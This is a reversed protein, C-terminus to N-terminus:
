ANRLSALPPTQLVRRMGAWSGALATGIGGAIGAFALWVRPVFSFDFVFYALAWCILAAGIAALAGAIVGVLVMEATQASSLQRRSAGLARTLAAERVREDQSSALATYLVLIGAVLAFAFLFQAAAILQDLLARVQGLIQETDIVTLNPFDRVLAGIASEQDGALYFSTIFTQPADRLLAPAMIVFFNVRMSDWDVKRVSSVTAEVPQGAVDFRLRQGLEIHLRRAIGEEISLEPADAAFWHGEVIRNHEPVEIAYSLNFERDILGRAREDEYNEPGVERGDIQVLRGRIMPELRVGALHRDRLAATLAEIQDPQINIIFRNPAHPPAQAHWQEVLDTRVVALVLLAMLGMALAVLQVVMALPRRELAALAFRWSVPLRRDRRLLQLLWLCGRAALAFGGIALLFGGGVVGALRADATAWLLLAAFGCGGALYALVARRAPAGLERRLVRVPSVARLQELPPLGFGLLLVLGCLLGQVGPYVSPPPVGERLMGQLMQMLGLHLVLGVFVGALSALFGICGFEACFLALIRAQTLGLCRMLAVADMRRRTFRRAASNVALAAILATLLAVLSLFRDARGLTREMEPRGEELSELHQGRELAPKVLALLERVARPDGAVMLRYTIRSAARVLGTGELDASNMMVRPAFGMVQFMRDPEASIAAGIRLRENGLRLSQGVALGLRQLVAPDVWVTGKVPGGDVARPTDADGIRVAGQLPYSDSVAKVAVLTTRASADEASAMSPFSASQASRLGLRQSTSQWRADIPHDSELVADGGLVVAGDRKLGQHVRDVLFGVSSIAAVALLLALALLRLEGARWDRRALLVAQRFFILLQM